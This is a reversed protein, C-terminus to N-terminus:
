STRGIIRVRDLRTFEGQEAGLDEDLGSVVFIVLSSVRQFKAPDTTLVTTGTQEHWDREALKFEQIIQLKEAEDFTIINVFDKFLRITKPRKSTQGGKGSSPFSTLQISHVTSITGFPVFLMLREDDSSVVFDERNSNTNQGKQRSELAVPGFPNFLRRISGFEHDSNMIDLKKFEVIINRYGNAAPVGLWPDSDSSAIYAACKSNM